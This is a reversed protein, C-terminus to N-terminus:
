VAGGSIQMQYLQNYTKSQTILDKHLGSDELHGNNLVLIQDTWAVSALKHSIVIATTNKLQSKLVQLINEETKGDVASLTDDLIALSSDKILARALTMRQKQGGSLNVGREGVISKYQNPWDLIEDHLRVQKTAEYIEDMEWKLKSFALNETVTQSFLFADQPVIRILNRLSSLKIQEISHGNILITGTPVPYLRCLLEILTTKGSGTAGVIGLSQGKQVKFSIKKLAAETKGPYTYSLNRVELSDLHNLEIVGEDLIDPVESLVQEIRRFSSMGEQLHSVSIGFATMPWMMRQVYQYFSFFAGVTVAGSLVDPIGILLLIVCGLAMPLEMAPSFFSDWLALRNCSQEYAKSFKNFHITQQDEQAFSKIVRVGSVIEQSVGSVQSFGEQRETYAKNLKQMVIKILFPTLPMLILTKWTWDPSIAIMIPVIMLTQFTADVLILFGPGIGVRFANVDNTILSMLKGIKNKQFFSPSLETYKLFLDNRLDDAVAHHFRAWFIRWLFRFFSLVITVGAIVGTIKAIEEFPSNQALHDLAKGILWPVSVELANTFALCILGLSVFKWYKRAFWLYPNTKSSDFQSSAPM